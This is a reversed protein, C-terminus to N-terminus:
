FRNFFIVYSFWNVVFHTLLNKVILTQQSYLHCLSKKIICIKAVLNRFYIDINVECYTRNEYIFTSLAQRLDAIVKQNTVNVCQPLNCGLTLFFTDGGKAASKFATIGGFQTKLVNQLSSAENEESKVCLVSHLKKCRSIDEPSPFLNKNPQGKM